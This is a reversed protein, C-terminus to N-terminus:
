RKLTSIPLTAQAYSPFRPRTESKVRRAVTKAWLASPACFVVPLRMAFLVLLPRLELPCRCQSTPRLPKTAMRLTLLFTTSPSDFDKKGDRHASPGDMIVNKASKGMAHNAREAMYTDERIFNKATRDKSDTDIKFHANSTVFAILSMENKTLTGTKDSSRPSCCYGM